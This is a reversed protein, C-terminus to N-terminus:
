RRSPWELLRPMAKTQYLAEPMTSTLMPTTMARLVSCTDPDPTGASM